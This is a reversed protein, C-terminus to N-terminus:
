LPATMRFLISAGQSYQTTNFGNAIKIIYRDNFLNQVDLDFGVSKDGNRGPDRGISFDATLHTPLTGSFGVPQGDVFGEFNV